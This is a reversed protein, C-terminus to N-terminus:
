LSPVDLTFGGEFQVRSGSENTKSWRMDLPIDAEETGHIENKWVLGRARAWEFANDAMQRSSPLPSFATQGINICTPLYTAVHLHAHLSM